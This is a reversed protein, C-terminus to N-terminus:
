AKEGVSTNESEDFCCFLFCILLKCLLSVTDPARNRNETKFMWIKCLWELTLEKSFLPNKMNLRPLTCTLLKKRLVEVIERALGCSANGRPLTRHYLSCSFVHRQVLGVCFIRPSDNLFMPLSNFPFESSVGDIPLACFQFLLYIFLVCKMQHGQLCFVLKYFIWVITEPHELTYQKLPFTIPVMTLTFARRLFDVIVPKYKCMDWAPHQSFLLRRPLTALHTHRSSELRWRMWGSGGSYGLLIREYAAM